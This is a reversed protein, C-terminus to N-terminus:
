ASYQVAGAAVQRGIGLPKLMISAAECATIECTAEMIFDLLPTIALNSNLILSVELLRGLLSNQRQLDLIQEQTAM